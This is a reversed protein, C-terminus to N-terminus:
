DIATTILLERLIKAAHITSNGTPDIKPSLEVLDFGIINFQKLAKLLEMFEPFFIGGAEPTGTGPLLSPDFVDLDVSLYVPVDKLLYLHKLFERTHFPFLQTTEQAFQFEERSGSRIGVQFLRDGNQLKELVRRMVTGHSLREGFLEDMLDLHADLQVVVLGPYFQLAEEIVPLSILHEGGIFAPIKKDSFIQHATKRIADLAHGKEGFPLDLDGMDHIPFETLDRQFYPSYNEQSYLAESRIALPAFRSGPRYSSTGDYGAGIIVIRAESYTATCGELPQRRIIEPM